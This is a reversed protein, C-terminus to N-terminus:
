QRAPGASETRQAWPALYTKLTKLEEPTVKADPHLLLFSPLPMADLQIM